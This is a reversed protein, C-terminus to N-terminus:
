RVMKDPHVVESATALLSLEIFVTQGMADKNHPAFEVKFLGNSTEYKDKYEINDVRELEANCELRGDVQKAKGQLLDDPTGCYMAAGDECRVFYSSTSYYARIGVRSAKSSDKERSICKPTEVEEKVIIEKGM